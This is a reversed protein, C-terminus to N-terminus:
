ESNLFNGACTDLPTQSETPSMEVGSDLESGAQDLGQLQTEQPFNSTRRAIQPTRNPSKGCSQHAERSGALEALLCHLATAVKGM